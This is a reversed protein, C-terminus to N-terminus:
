KQVPMGAQIWAQLGGKLAFVESFGSKRLMVCAALSNNGTHCSVVIPRKKYKELDPLRESLKTFPVNKANLIHNTAYEASDGIDLIIAEQRNILQVAEPISVWKGASLTGGIFSWFLMGGSIIVILILWINNQIFDM